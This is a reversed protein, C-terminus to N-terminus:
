EADIMVCYCVFLLTMLGTWYSSYAVPIFCQYTDCCIHLTQVISSVCTFYWACFCFMKTFHLNPLPPNTRIVFRSPLKPIRTAWLGTSLIEVIGPESDRSENNGKSFDLKAGHRFWKVRVMGRDTAHWEKYGWRAESRVVWLLMMSLDPYIIICQDSIVYFLSIIRLIHKLKIM